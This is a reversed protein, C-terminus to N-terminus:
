AARVPMNIVQASQQGRYSALLAAWTTRVTALNREKVHGFGRIEEPLRALKLALDHNDAALRALLEDVLAEYDAILQREM